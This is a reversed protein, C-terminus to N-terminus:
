GFDLSRVPKSFRDPRKGNFVISFDMQLNVFWMASSRM